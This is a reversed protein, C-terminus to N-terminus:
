QPCSKRELDVTLRGSKLYLDRQPFPIEIGRNALETELAWLYRAQTRGPATMLPKDVWIVLEFNLSSDGFGVLWVDPTRKGENVTGDVSLAAAIGAERV